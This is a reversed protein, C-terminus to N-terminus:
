FRGFFGSLLSLGCRLALTVVSEPWIGVMLVANSFSMRIRTRINGWRVLACLRLEHGIIM